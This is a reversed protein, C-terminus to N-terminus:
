LAQGATGFLMPWAVACCLRFGELRKSHVLIWATLIAQLFKVGGSHKTRALDFVRVQAWLRTAQPKNSFHPLGMIWHGV